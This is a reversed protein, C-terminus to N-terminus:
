FADVVVEVGYCDVAVVVVVIVLSPARSARSAYADRATHKRRKEKKEMISVNKQLIYLVVVALVV